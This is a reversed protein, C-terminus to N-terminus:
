NFHRDTRFNCAYYNCNITILPQYIITIRVALLKLSLEIFEFYNRDNPMKSIAISKSFKKEDLKKPSVQSYKKRIRKWVLRLKNLHHVIQTPLNIKGKRVRKDFKKPSDQSYKKKDNGKLRSENKEFSLNNQTRPNIKCKQTNM